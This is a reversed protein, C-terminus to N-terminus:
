QNDYLRHIAKLDELIPCEGLGVDRFAKLTNRRQFSEM